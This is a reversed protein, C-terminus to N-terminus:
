INPQHDAAIGENQYDFPADAIVGRMNIQGFLTELYAGFRHLLPVLDKKGGTRVVEEVFREFTEWDKYMLSRMTTATFDVLKENLEALPFADPNQEARQTMQLLHWIERRLTLTKERKHRFAPFLDETNVNPEILAAFGILSQRFSDTLLGYAAEIRARVTFAPRIGGIDSLEQQYVKKLEISAVYAVGDLLGFIEDTEDKMRVLLDNIVANMQTIQDYIRAFIVLAPKLPEDRELITGIVDLWALIQGIFQLAAACEDPMTQDATRFIAPLSEVSTQAAHESLNEFAPSTKLKAALDGCWASWANIGLPASRLLEEGLLASNQFARSLAFIEGASVPPADIFNGNAANTQELSGILEYGIRACRLLAARALRLEGSWDRTAARERSEDAISHNRIDLFSELSTLWIGLSMALASSDAVALPASSDDSVSFDDPPAPPINEHNMVSTFNVATEM